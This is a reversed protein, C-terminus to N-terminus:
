SLNKNGKKSKGKRKTLSQIKLAPKRIRLSFKGKKPAKTALQDNAQDLVSKMMEDREQRVMDLTKPGEGPLADQERALRDAENLRRPPAKTKPM